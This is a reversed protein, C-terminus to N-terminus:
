RAGRIPLGSNWEALAQQEDDIRPVTYGTAILWRYVVVQAPLWYVYPMDTHDNPDNIDEQACSLHVGNQTPVRTDVNWEEIDCALSGRCYLCIQVTRPVSVHYSM